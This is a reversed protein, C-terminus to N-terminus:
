IADHCLPCSNSCLGPSLSPCPLRAHQLGHPRFSNSIVSESSMMSPYLSNVDGTTGDHFLKNEKGKMLYCWGGHYSPHIYDGITLEKVDYDQFELEYKDYVNIDYLQPFFNKYDKSDYTKKFEALCCAGITLKTHGEAYMIELAEKVVLVDNAIYKAEKDTIECGAYRYGTYDMELKKHVTGFSKGIKRVSFPLLKLSDQMKITGKPTVLTITYWQGMDSITYSFYKKPIDKPKLWSKTGKDDTLLAQQYDTQTILYYLWFSGDFKLNHYYLIVNGLSELYDFTEQISHFLYVDETNLEVLASAWVETSTQGEYVTTEFDGVFIRPM